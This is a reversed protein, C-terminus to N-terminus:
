KNKTYYNNSNGIYEYYNPDVTIKKIRMKKHIVNLCGKINNISQMSSSLMNSTNYNSVNRSITSINSINDEKGINLNNNPKKKIKIKIVRKKKNELKKTKQEKMKKKWLFYYKQVVTTYRYKEIIDRLLNEKYFIQFNFIINKDKSKPNKNILSYYINQRTKEIIIKEKYLNMYKKLTKINNSRILKFLLKERNQKIKEKQINRLKEKFSYYYLFLVKKKIFKELCFPLKIWANRNYNKEYNNERTKSKIIKDSTTNEIISIQSIKEEIQLEKLKFSKSKKILKTTKANNVVKKNPLKKYYIKNETENRINLIKSFAEKFIHYKYNIFYQKLLLEFNNMKIMLILKKRTIYKRWLSQIKTVAVVQINLQKNLKELASSEFIDNESISSTKEKTINTINNYFAEENKTRNMIKKKPYYIKSNFNSRETRFSSSLKAAMLFEESDDYQINRTNIKNKDENKNRQKRHLNSTNLKALVLEKKPKNFTKLDKLPNNPPVFFSNFRINDSDKSSDISNILYKNYFSISPRKNQKKLKNPYNIM